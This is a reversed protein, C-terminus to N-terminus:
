NQQNHLPPTRPTGAFINNEEKLLWDDNQKQQQQQENEM